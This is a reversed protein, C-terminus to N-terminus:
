RSASPSSGPAVQPTEVVFVVRRNLDAGAAQGAAGPVVLRDEGYGVARLQGEPLGLAVLSTRVGDARKQSLSRNYAASGAPDTFGEITIMSTPYHKQVLAAFKELTPQVESTVESQDFAFHVPVAFGLGDELQAIRVGYDSRLLALDSNLSGMDAALRGDNALREAREAELARAQENAAAQVAAETAAAQAELGRRLQAKTACGASFLVPVLAAATFLRTRNSM